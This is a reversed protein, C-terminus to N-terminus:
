SNYCSVFSGWEARDNLESFVQPDQRSLRHYVVDNVLGFDWKATVAVDGSIWEIAFMLLWTSICHVSYTKGASVDTYIQVDHEAGDLSSVEVSMYSFILSQRKLDKPTLPSLFTVKLSVKDNVEITFISKTSTYEYSTQNAPTIDQPAGMWTFTENDVRVLGTWGLVQGSYYNLIHIQRYLPCSERTSSHGNDPYIGEM